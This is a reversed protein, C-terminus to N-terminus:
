SKLRTALAELERVGAESCWHGLTNSPHKYEVDCVEVRIADLVPNRKRVCIFDDWAWEDLNPDDSIFAIILDSIQSLENELETESLESKVHSKWGTLHSIGKSIKSLLALPPTKVQNGM